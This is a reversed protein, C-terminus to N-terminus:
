WTTHFVTVKVDQPLTKNESDKYSPVNVINNPDHIPVYSFLFFYYTNEGIHKIKYVKWNM